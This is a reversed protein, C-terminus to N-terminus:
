ERALASADLRSLRARLGSASTAASTGASNAARHHGHPLEAAQASGILRGTLPSVMAPFGPAPFAPMDSVGDSSAVRIPAPADPAAPKGLMALQRESALYQGATPAEYGFDLDNLSKLQEQNSRTEYETELFMKEQQMAAIQRDALQVESKIANVRFTLATTLAFALALATGWGITHLRGQTTKM